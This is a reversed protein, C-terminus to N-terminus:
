GRCGLSRALAVVAARDKGTLGWTERWNADFEGAGEGDGPGMELFEVARQYDSPSPAPEHGVPPRHDWPRLTMRVSQDANKKVQVMRVQMTDNPLQAIIVSLWAERGELDIVCVRVTTDGFGSRVDADPAITRLDVMITPADQKPVYPIKQVLFRPLPHGGTAPPM